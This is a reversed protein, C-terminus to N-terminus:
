KTNPKWVLFTPISVVVKAKLNSRPLRDMVVVLQGLQGLGVYHCVLRTRRAAGIRRKRVSTWGIVWPSGNTSHGRFPLLRTSIGLSQVRLDGFHCATKLCLSAKVCDPKTLTGCFQQSQDHRFIKVLSLCRGLIFCLCFGDASVVRSRNLCIPCGFCQWKRFLVFFSDQLPM